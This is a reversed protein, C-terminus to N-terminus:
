LPDSVIPNTFFAHFSGNFISYIACLPVIVISSYYNMTVADIKKVEEIGNENKVKYQKAYHNAYQQQGAFLLVGLLTAFVGLVDANSDGDTTM